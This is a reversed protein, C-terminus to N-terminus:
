EIGFYTNLIVDVAAKMDDTDWRYSRGAIFCFAGGGAEGNPLTIFGAHLGPAATTAEYIWLNDPNDTLPIDWYSQDTEVTIDGLTGVKATLFDPDAGNIWSGEVIGCYVALEEFFWDEGYRVPLLINGGMEMYAMLDAEADEWYDFDGAYNNGFWCIAEFYDTDFMWSPVGGGKGLLSDGFDTGSYLPSTDFLDWTKFNTRNGWPVGFDWVDEADSGYTGWDIGNVCLIGNDPGLESITFNTQGSPTSNEAADWVTVDVWYDGASLDGLVIEPDTTTFSAGESTSVVFSDVQGYYFDVTATATVTFGEMTPATYPVIFIQGDAVSLSLEPAYGAEVIISVSLPSPDVNGMNDLTRFYVIHPGLTLVSPGLTITVASSAVTIIDPAVTTWTDPDDLAWQFDTVIGDVDTGGIAFPVGQSTSAGNPPVTVGITSPLFAPDTIDRTATIDIDRSAPTEDWENSNDKAEVNFTYTTTNDPFNLRIRASTELTNTTDGDDVWYRYAVAEGDIDSSRWYVNVYYFTASDPATDITYSTIFTNPKLNTDPDEPTEACGAALLLALALLGAVKMM